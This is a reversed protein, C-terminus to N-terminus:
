RAPAGCQPIGQAVLDNTTAWHTDIYYDTVYGTVSKATGHLWVPNGSVGDLIIWCDPTFATGEALVGLFRTQPGPEDHIVLGDGGTRYVHRGPADALAVESRRPSTWPHCASRAM